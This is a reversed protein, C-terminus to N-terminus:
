CKVVISRLFHSNHSGSLDSALIFVKGAFHIGPVKVDKLVPRALAIARIENKDAYSFDIETGQASELAHLHSSKMIVSGLAFVDRWGEDAPYIRIEETRLSIM